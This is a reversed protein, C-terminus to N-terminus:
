LLTLPGTITVGYCQVGVGWLWHGLWTDIM